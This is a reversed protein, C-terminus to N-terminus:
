PVVTHQLIAKMGNLLGRCPRIVRTCYAFERVMSERQEPRKTTKMGSSIPAGVRGYQRCVGRSGAERDVHHMTRAVLMAAVLAIIPTGGMSEFRIMPLTV